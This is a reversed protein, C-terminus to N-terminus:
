HTWILLFVSILVDENQVVFCCCGYSWPSDKNRKSVSNITTQTEVTAPPVPVAVVLRLQAPIRPGDKMAQRSGTCGDYHFFWCCRIIFLLMHLLWGVIACFLLANWRKRADCCMKDICNTWCWTSTFPLADISATLKAVLLFVRVIVVLFCRQLM